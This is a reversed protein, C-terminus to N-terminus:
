LSAAARESAERRWARGLLYASTLSLAAVAALIAGMRMWPEGLAQRQLAIVALTHLWEGTILLLLAQVIRLAVETKLLLLVPFLAAAATLVYAGSRLFHAAILLASIVTTVISLTRM